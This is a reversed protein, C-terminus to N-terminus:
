ENNPLMFADLVEGIKYTLESIEHLMDDYKMTYREVKCELDHIKILLSDIYEYLDPRNM